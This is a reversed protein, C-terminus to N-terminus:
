SCLLWETNKNYEILIEESINITQVGYRGVGGNDQRSGANLDGTLIMEQHKVVNLVVSLKQHFTEKTQIMPQPYVRIIISDLLMILRESIFEYNKIYKKQNKSIAM